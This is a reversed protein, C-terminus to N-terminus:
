KMYYLNFICEYAYEKTSTDISQGGGGCSSSSISPEEIINFMAEKVKENLESATQLSPSYSLIDFTVADIFNVRGGDLVKLVVYQKPKNSPKEGVYVPIDLVGKLYNFVIKEIM